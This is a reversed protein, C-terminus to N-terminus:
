YSLLILSWTRWNLAWILRSWHLIKENIGKICTLLVDKIMQCKAYEYRRWAWCHWRFVRFRIYCVTWAPYNILWMKRRNKYGLSFMLHFANSCIEKFSSKPSSSKSSWIFTDRNEYIYCLIGKFLTNKYGFAVLSRVQSRSFSFSTCSINQLM